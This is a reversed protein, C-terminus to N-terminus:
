RTTSAATCVNRSMGVDGLRAVLRHKKRTVPLPSTRATKSTLQAELATLRADLAVIRDAQDHSYELLRRVTPDRRILGVAIRVSKVGTDPSTQWVGAEWHQEDLADNQRQPM